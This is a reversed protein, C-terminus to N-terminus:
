QVAKGKLRSVIKRIERKDDETLDAQESKAYLTLMYAAYQGLHFYNIARVGGRKGKGSRGWRAKRVGGTGPVLPHAEPAEAIHDELATKEAPSL